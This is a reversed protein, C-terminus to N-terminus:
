SGTFRKSSPKDDIAQKNEIPPATEINAYSRSGSRVPDLIQRQSALQSRQELMPTRPVEVMSKTHPNASGLMTGKM